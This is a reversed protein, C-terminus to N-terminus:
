QNKGKVEIWDTAEFDAITPMWIYRKHRGNETCYLSITKTKDWEPAGSIYRTKDWTSRRFKKSNQLGAVVKVFTMTKPTKVDSEWDDAAYENYIIEYKCKVTKGHCQYFVNNTYILHQKPQWFPRRIKHGAKAAQLAELFNLGITKM